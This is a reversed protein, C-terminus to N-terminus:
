SSLTTEVMGIYSYRQTVMHVPFYPGQQDIFSQGDRVTIWPPLRLKHAQCEAQSFSDRVILVYIIGVYTIRLLDMILCTLCVCLLIYSGHHPICVIHSRCSATCLLTRLLCILCTCCVYLSVHSVLCAGLLVYSVHDSILCINEYTKYHSPIYGSDPYSCTNGGEM